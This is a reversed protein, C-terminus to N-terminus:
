ALTSSVMSRLSPTSCGAMPSLVPSTAIHVGDAGGNKGRQEQRGGQRGCWNVGPEDVRGPLAVDGRDAREDTLAGVDVDRVAVAARGEVPRGRVAVEFHGRQQQLGASGDRGRCADAQHRWEEHGGAVAAVGDDARQQLRPRAGTLDIGVPRGHQHGRGRGAVPRRHLPQDVAAGIDARLIDRITLGGQHEGGSAIAGGRNLYQERVAGVGTDGRLDHLHLLDADVGVAIRQRRRLGFFGRRFLGRAIAAVLADVPGRDDSSEGRQVKGSALAM